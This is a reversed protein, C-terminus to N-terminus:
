RKAYLSRVNVASLKQPSGYLVGEKGTLLYLQPRCWDFTGSGVANNELNFWIVTVASPITIALNNTPAGMNGLLTGRYSGYYTRCRTQSDLGMQCCMLYQANPVVSIPPSSLVAGVTNTTLRVVDKGLIQIGNQYSKWQGSDVPPLLNQQGVLVNMGKITDPNTFDYLIGGTLFNVSKIVGNFPYGFTGESNGAGIRLPNKTSPGLSSFPGSWGNDVGNLITRVKKNTYDIEFHLKYDTGWQINGSRVLVIQNWGMKGYGNGIWLEITNSPTVYVIFGASVNQPVSSDRHCLVAQFNGNPASPNFVIDWIQYNASFSTQYPVEVYDTTGNLKLGTSSPYQRVQTRNLQVQYPVFNYTGDVALMPNRVQYSSATWNSNTGITYKIYKVNPGTNFNCYNSRNLWTNIPYSSAFGNGTYGNINSVPNLNADYYSIAMYRGANGSQFVTSGFFEASFTVTKSNKLPVLPSTAYDGMANLYLVGGSVTASGNMTWQAFDPMLNNYAPAPPSMISSATTKSQYAIPSNGINLMPQKFTFTGVANNSISIKISNVNAGTTFTTSSATYYSGSVFGTVGDVGTYQNIGYQNDNRGW